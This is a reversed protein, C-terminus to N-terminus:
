GGRRRRERRQREKFQGLLRRAEAIERQQRRPKPDDGKDYGGLLLVVKQGYFHVFVRLLVKEPRGGVDPADGGFMRAVEDAAHRVRFEHLGEGLAKLWETRVLDIGRASLVQDIATDLAVFRFDSLDDVFRQFPITGDDAEFPEPTWDGPM